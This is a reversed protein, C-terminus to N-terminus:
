GNYTGGCVMAECVETCVRGHEEVADPVTKTESEYQLFADGDYKWVQTVFVGREEYHTSVEVTGFSSYAGYRM